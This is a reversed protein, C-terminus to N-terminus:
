LSLILLFVAVVSAAGCSIMINIRKDKKKEDEARKLLDNLDLKKRTEFSDFPRSFGYRDRDYNIQSAKRGRM